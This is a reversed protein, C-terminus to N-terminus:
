FVLIIFCEKLTETELKQCVPKQLLSFGVNIRPM